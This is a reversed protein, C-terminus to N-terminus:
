KFSFLSYMDTVNSNDWKSIHGFSKICVNQNYFWLYVAQRVNFNYLKM